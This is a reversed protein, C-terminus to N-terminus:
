EFLKPQHILNLNQTKKNKGFCTNDAIKLGAEELVNLPLLLRELARPEVKIAGGGYSKGVLILNNLTQPHSLVLMLKELDEIAQNHPYVCLFGTLPLVGIRNRIFRANRRGLYAFLIPPPKRTEMKYWPKRQKILEGKDIGLSEGLELYKRVNEPFFEKPRGDLSLLQTPRGKKQLNSITTETVEGEEVDRTRGIATVLFESPIGLSNVKEETLFFFDNAGTAIGRQVSAYAALPLGEQIIENFPRSLGTIIGEEVSRALVNLNGSYLPNCGSVLWTGLDNTDAVGCKTWFFKKAPICNRILIIVPNTDVKPFPTALPDFTVVAELKYHTTIWSWLSNAFVGECIDAPLIFALRGNTALLQLARLLFYVHLGARGDININAFGIVFKKLAAKDASSLRHHRVYPPNAVISSFQRAPPDLVFDRIQVLELDTYTLGEQQAQVIVQHDLETGELVFQRNLTRTLSKAAKFFAGTGVAPDFIRNSGDCVTYGVMAQAVWPPTWFQGKERLLERAPGSTPLSLLDTM